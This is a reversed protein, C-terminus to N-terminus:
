GAFMANVCQRTNEDYIRVTCDSGASAFKTGDRYYDVSLTQNGEGDRHQMSVQSATGHAYLSEDLESLKKGSTIHWHRIM